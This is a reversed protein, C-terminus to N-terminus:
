TDEHIRWDKLKCLAQALSGEPAPTTYMGYLTQKLLFNPMLM